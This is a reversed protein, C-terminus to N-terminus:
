WAGWESVMELELTNVWLFVWPYALKHELLIDWGQVMEFVWPLASVPELEYVMEGELM